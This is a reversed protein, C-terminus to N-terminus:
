ATLFCVWVPSLWMHGFDCAQFNDSCPSSSFWTECLLVTCVHCSECPDDQFSLFFVTHHGQRGALTQTARGAVWFATLIFTFEALIAGRIAFESGWPSWAPWLFSPLLSSSGCACHPRYGAPPHIDCSFLVAVVWTWRSHGWWFACCSAWIDRDRYM